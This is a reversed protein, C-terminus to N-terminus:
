SNYLIDLCNITKINKNKIDVDLIYDNMTYPILFTKALDKTLLDTHTVIELYDNLPYRHIDKVKGLIINNEFVNCDIIDFWFFQNKDLICNDQTSQMDVYLEQNILIKSKNIDEYNEFLVTQQMKNFEKIHLLINKNTIFQSNKKFQEPFDSSIHLKLHGKLGISKGIKAVIIEKNM